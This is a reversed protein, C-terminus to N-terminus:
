RGVTRDRLGLEVEHDDRQTVENNSADQLKRDKAEPRVCEFFQFDDRERCDTKGVIKSSWSSPKHRSRVVHCVGGNM